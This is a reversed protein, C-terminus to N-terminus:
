QWLISKSNIEFYRDKSRTIAVYRLNLDQEDERCLWSDLHYVTDFELGKSKHITMLRITGTQALVHEAYSIATGLSSGHEAFVKMCDALDDASTSGRDLREARWSEIASLTQAQTLSEPGLKKMLSVLKPGIDSGAISVSRGISLLRLALGFLPANNRCLFVSGNDINTAFLGDLSQVHGGEKIWQFGPVRWRAAEVIAQPCRFSVSLDLPSAKFRQALTAMGDQVSQRFGYISQFRDGVFVVRQQALQDLLAHNIPNLDQAEDVLVLPYRPFSAAAGFVAPMYPQDNYDIKGQFAAQISRHLVADILDATLDDPEEDLLRHFENRGALRRANPYKGEPVYGVAKAAAVGNVVNWYCEWMAGQERRPVENIIERLIDASKKFLLTLNRGTQSAWIRHGLGNFTRVTTTSSMRKTAEDAIKKNFALFLTPKEHASKEVMELTATKGSGAYANIILNDKTTQVAEIIKEQESTPTM